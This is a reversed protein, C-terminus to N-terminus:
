KSVKKKDFITKPFDAPIKGQNDKYYQKWKLVDRELQRDKAYDAPFEKKYLRKVEKNLDDTDTSM